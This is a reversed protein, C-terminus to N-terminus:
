FSRQLRFTVIIDKGNHTTPKAFDIRFDGDRSALSFLSGNYLGPRDALLRGWAADVRSAVQESLAPAAADEIITVKHPVVHTIYM